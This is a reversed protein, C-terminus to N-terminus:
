SKEKGWAANMENWITLAVMRIGTDGSLYPRIMNRVERHAEALAELMPMAAQEAESRAKAIEGKLNEIQRKLSAVEARLGPIVSAAKIAEDRAEEAMQIASMGQEIAEVAPLLRRARLNVKTDRLVDLVPRSM